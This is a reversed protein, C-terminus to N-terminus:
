QDGGRLPAFAKLAPLANGQSDFLATAGGNWIRCGKVPISEPYWYVVGIGRRDPTRRVTKVVDALFALQGEPSLPWAMNKNGQLSRINRYPYATEVVVIDKRYTRAAQHLTKRLDALSGHWWPYYSLGILDFPVSRRKLNDFFWKTGAWNGGTHIHIMIRVRDTRTLPKNVGRVGAKLLRALRVWQKEADPGRTLKGDPWLMGPAIENGIQVIDPRARHRAFQAVVSATYTEVRKELGDFDLDAWAAPKTQHGPDAWTGSYHFNLLLKAGPAKIRKALALTYPLDNVVANKHNPNVFLRLRFCNCGHAKLIALPDRPKGGQRFVGGLKEIKTLMSIDGGVLFEGGGCCLAGGAGGGRCPGGLM